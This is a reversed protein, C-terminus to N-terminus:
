AAFYDVGSNLSQGTMDGNRHQGYMRIQSTALPPASAITAVDLRGRRIMKLEMGRNISEVLPMLGKFPLPTLHNCKSTNLAM